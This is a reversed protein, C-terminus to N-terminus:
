VIEGSELAPTEGFEDQFGNSCDKADIWVDM